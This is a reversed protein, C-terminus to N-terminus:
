PAPASVRRRPREYLVMPGGRTVVPQVRAFGVREALRISPANDPHIICVTREAPIHDDGWALAAELGERGIGQGHAEPVLGWGVEPEGAYSPETERKLEHFGIEGLFRGTERDEVLWFGFGLAAWSGWYRLLRLWVDERGLARGGIYRVVDPHSWMACAADLDSPRHVRLRLRKTELTPPPPM